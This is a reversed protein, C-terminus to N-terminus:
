KLQKNVFEIVKDREKGHINAKDLLEEVPIKMLDMKEKMSDYNYGTEKALEFKKEVDSFEFIYNNITDICEERSIRSTSFAIYDEDTVNYHTIDEVITSYRCLLGNPQISIFPGM